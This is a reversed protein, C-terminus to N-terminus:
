FKSLLGCVNVFGRNWFAATGGVSELPFTLDNRVEAAVVGECLDDVSPLSDLEDAVSLGRCEVDVVPASTLACAVGGVAALRAGAGGPGGGGAPACLAGPLFADAGAGCALALSLTM